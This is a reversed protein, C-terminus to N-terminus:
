VALKPHLSMSEIAADYADLFEQEGCHEWTEAAELLKTREMFDLQSNTVSTHFLGKYMRVVTKEDLLGIYEKEDKTRRFFPIQIEIERETTVNAKLTLTQM